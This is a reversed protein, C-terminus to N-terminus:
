KRTNWSLSILMVPAYGMLSNRLIRASSYGVCLVGSQVVHGAGPLGLAGSRAFGGRAARKKGGDAVFHGGRKFLPAPISIIGRLLYVSLTIVLGGNRLIRAVEARHRAATPM